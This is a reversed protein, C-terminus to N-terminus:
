SNNITAIIARKNIAAKQYLLNPSLKIEKGNHIDLNEFPV